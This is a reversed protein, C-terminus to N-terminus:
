KPINNKLIIDKVNDFVNKINDTDTACTFHCYITKGEERNLSLFANQIFKLAKDYDCGDTYDEFCTSLDIKKIKERFLDLKNFFLMIPTDQFYRSNCIEDFLVLSEKMRLTSDDEYCKQDYESLSTVFIVATVNDFCHIWKKRENRQGGVDFLRFKFGAFDFETEVIGTTKVRCRLVDQETPVYDQVSIRSIHSFFYETSDLLQFNSRLQYVAQIGKDKWLAELEQGLQPTYIKSINLLANQDFENVKSARARNEPDDIAINFKHTAAILAKMSQLINSRIIDKYVMCEDQSYGNHHIIKMQKFLTSKGSEGAGLLLLKIEKGMEIASQQQQHTIQEDARKMPDKGLCVNGM